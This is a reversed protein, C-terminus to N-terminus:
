SGSARRGAQTSGTKPDPELTAVAAAQHHIDSVRQSFLEFADKTDHSYDKALNAFDWGEDRLAIALTVRQAARYSPRLIQALGGSLAVILGISFVIWSTNSHKHVTDAAVAIGSTAFGGGIVVLSLLVHGRANQSAQRLWNRLPYTFRGDVWDKLQGEDFSDTSTSDYLRHLIHQGLRDVEKLEYQPVGLGSRLRIFSRRLGGLRKQSQSKPRSGASQQIGPQDSM